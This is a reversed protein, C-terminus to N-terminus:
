TGNYFYIAQSETRYIDLTHDMIRDLPAMGNEKTM